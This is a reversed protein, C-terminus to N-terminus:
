GPENYGMSRKLADTNPTFPNNLDFDPYNAMALIEGTKPKMVIAIGAKAENETVNKELYKETLQQVTSDVTLVLDMGDQPSVYQEEKFPTERGNGDTSGIIKGPIGKLTDEYQYELGYLGQNDTGTFGIVQSLLSGYPYIRKTSEDIKVGKISNDKIWLLIADAKEKEVKDAITVLSSKKNVKSLVNEKDLELVEALKTAVIEKDKIDNPVVSVVNVSTSQALKKEGTADYITGREPSILRDRTQQDYAKASYHASQIVQIYFLRIALLIIIIISGMLIWFIRKKTDINTFAM